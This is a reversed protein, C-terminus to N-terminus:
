SSPLIAHLDEGRGTGRTIPSLSVLEKEGRWAALNAQHIHAASQDRPDFRLLLMAAMNGFQEGSVPSFRV